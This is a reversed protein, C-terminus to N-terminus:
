EPDSGFEVADPPPFYPQRDDLSRKMVLADGGGEHKYYGRRRGVETFGLRRYLALAATNGAEVELFMARARLAAARDMAHEMLRHGLGCGRWEGAVAISLIEAEGAAARVLTMALLASGLKAGVAVVGNQVMLAEVEPGSWGKAFAAAHLEAISEHERLDLRVIRAGTARWRRLPLIM